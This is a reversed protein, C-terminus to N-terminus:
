LYLNKYGHFPGMGFKTLAVIPYSVMFEFISLAVFPFIFVKSTKGDNLGLPTDEIGSNNKLTEWSQLSSPWFNIKAYQSSGSEVICLTPVVPFSIACIM